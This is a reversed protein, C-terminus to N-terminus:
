RYHFVAAGAYPANLCNQMQVPSVMPTHYFQQGYFPPARGVLVPRRPLVVGPPKAAAQAPNTTARQKLIDEYAAKRQRAIYEEMREARDRQEEAMRQMEQIQMMEEDDGGCCGIGSLGQRRRNEANQVCCFAGGLSCVVCGIAAAVIAGVAVVM